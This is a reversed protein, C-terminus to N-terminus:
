PPDIQMSFSTPSIKVADEDVTFVKIAMLRRFEELAEDGTIHNRRELSKAREGLVKLLRESFLFSIAEKPLMTQQYAKLVNEPIDVPTSELPM